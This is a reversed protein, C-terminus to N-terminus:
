NAELNKEFEKLFSEPELILRKEGKGELVKKLADLKRLFTALEPSSNLVKYYEALNKQAESRAVKAESRAESLKKSKEAEAENQIMKAENVGQALILASEKAREAKMRDLITPLVSPPFGVHTVKIFSIKIGYRLAERIVMSDKNSMKEELLPLGTEKGGDFLVDYKIKGIEQSLVGDIIQEIKNEFDIFNGSTEFFSKPSALKYAVAISININKEDATLRDKRGIQLFRVTSDYKKVTQFFPWKLFVGTQQQPVAHPVDADANIEFLVKGFLSTVATENAAVTYISLRVILLLFVIFGIVILM